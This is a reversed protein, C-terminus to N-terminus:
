KKVGVFMAARDSNRDHVMKALRAQLKEADEDTMAFILGFAKEDISRSDARSPDYMKM